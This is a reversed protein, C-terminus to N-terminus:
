RHYHGYHGHEPARWYGGRWVRHAGYGSWYGSVWTFGVGPAPYAPAYYAPAPAYYAPAPAYYVPPPPPAVYVPAPAYYRPGVGIGIGIAVRPAAALASAGLLLATIIKTKM